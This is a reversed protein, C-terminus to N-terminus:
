PRNAARGGLSVGPLSARPSCGFDMSNSSDRLTPTVPLTTAGLVVQVPANAVLGSM